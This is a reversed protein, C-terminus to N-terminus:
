RRERYRDLTLQDLEAVFADNVSGGVFGPFEESLFRFDFSLCNRGAPVDLDIQLITVDLAGRVTGGLSTSAFFSQPGTVGATGSSM